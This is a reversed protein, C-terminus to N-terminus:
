HFAEKHKRWGLCLYKGKLRVYPIGEQKLIKQITIAYKGQFNRIVGVRRYTDGYRVTCLGEKNISCSYIKDKELRKIMDFIRNKGELQYWSLAATDATVSDDALQKTRAISQKTETGEKKGKPLDNTQTSKGNSLDNKRQENKDDEGKAQVKENEIKQNEDNETKKWPQKIIVAIIVAPIALSLAHFLIALFFPWLFPALVLGVFGTIAYLQKNREAWNKLKEMKNEEMM